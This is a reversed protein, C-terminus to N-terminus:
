EDCDKWGWGWGEALLRLTTCPAVIYPPKVGEPFEGAEGVLPRWNMWQDIDRNGCSRCVQAEGKGNQDDPWEVTEWEPTHLDLQKRDATIRRLVAHPDHRAVHAATGYDDGDSLRIPLTAVPCQQADLVSIHWGKTHDTWADGGAAEADRQAADLAERLWAVMGDADTM